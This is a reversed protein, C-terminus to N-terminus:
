LNISIHKSDLNINRSMTRIRGNKVCFIHDSRENHLSKWQGDNVDKEIDRFNGERGPDLTEWPDMVDVQGSERQLIAIKPAGAETHCQRQKTWEEVPLRAFCNSPPKTTDKSDPATIKLSSAPSKQSGKVILFQIWPTVPSRHCVKILLRIQYYLSIQFSSSKVPDNSIWRNDHDQLIMDLPESSKESEIEAQKKLINVFRRAMPIDRERRSRPDILIEAQNVPELKVIANYIYICIYIQCGDQEDSYSPIMTVTKWVTESYSLFDPNRTKAWEGLSVTRKFEAKMFRSSSKKEKKPNMVIDRECECNSRPNHDDRSVFLRQRQNMLLWWCRNFTRSSIVFRWRSNGQRQSWNGTSWVNWHHAVRCFPRQVLLPQGGWGGGGGGSAAGRVTWDAAASGIGRNDLMITLTGSLVDDAFRWTKCTTGDKWSSWCNDGRARRSHYGCVETLGGRRVITLSARM